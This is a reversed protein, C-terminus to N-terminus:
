LGGGRKSASQLRAKKLSARDLKEPNLAKSLPLGRKLRDSISRSTMGLSRSWDRLCQTIGNYSIMRTTYRNITQERPTAWRCNEPYYSQNNDIRDLSLGEPKLGMDSVFNAFTGWRECVVIGRGRYNKYDPHNTRYRYCRRHMSYWCDYTKRWQSHM